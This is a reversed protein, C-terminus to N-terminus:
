RVPTENLMRLSRAEPGLLPQAAGSREILARADPAISVDDWPGNIDLTISPGPGSPKPAEFSAKVALSRDVFSARGRMLGRVAPATMSGDVIEAVGQDVALNLQLQEFPTRGGRWELASLPRRDVRRLVDALGIGILEGQRITSVIRGNLQRAVEVPTEGASEVTFQGQATGSLTRQLGLEGLVAGAEVRDFSGTMRLDLGPGAAAM